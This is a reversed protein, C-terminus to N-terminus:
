VFLVRLRASAHVSHPLGQEPM